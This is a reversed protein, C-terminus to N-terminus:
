DETPEGALMKDIRKLGATTIKYKKRAQKSKGSKHVQIALRPDSKILATFANTVNGVRHGMHNLEKNIPAAELDAQGGYKQFWAGVVLVKDADTQPAAADFFSALDGFGEEVATSGAGGGDAKGAGVFRQNIGPAYKSIVWELVRGREEESLPELAGAIAAMADIEQKITNM